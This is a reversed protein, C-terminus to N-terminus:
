CETGKFLQIGKLKENLADIEKQQKRVREPKLGNAINLSQSHDAIGLYSLGLAKAALAMEELTGKGDSWDTHCHFTGRLDSEEILKPLEHKAAADIEGTNERLEPPIFDLDLAAFIDAEDKCKVKKKEGELAYENLKLGYTQARARMAINHEKSGTFYHLAF